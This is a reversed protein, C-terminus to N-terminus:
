PPEAAPPAPSDVAEPAPVGGPAPASGPTQPGGPGGPPRGGRRLMAKAKMKAKMKAKFDARETVEAAPAPRPGTWADLTQWSLAFAGLLLGTGGLLQAVRVQRELFAIRAQDGSHNM